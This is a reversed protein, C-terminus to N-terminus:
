SSQAVSLQSKKSGLRRTLWSRFRLSPREVIWYSFEAAALAYLYGQPLCPLHNSVFLQQWLYLSYSLVGIHRIIPHNLIRGVWSFPHQILYILVGGICVALITPKFCLTIFSAYQKPLVLLLGTIGWFGIIALLAASWANLYRSCFAQWKSSERKLALLCGIMMTDVWGHVMYGEHGRLDPVSFYIVLRLIPMIVILLWAIRAASGRRHGLLFALPWFLYFIEEISLSWSHAIFYGSPHPYLAFTYTAAALFSLPHEPIIQLWWLVAMVALFFYYPPFIRLTRRLYFDKLSITGTKDYERCLLTTILYGSIVFFVAVGNRGNGIVAQFSLSNAIAVPLFWSSHALIVILISLARMGDLSPINRSQVPYRVGASTHTM